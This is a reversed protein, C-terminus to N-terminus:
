RAEPLGFAALMEASPEVPTTRTLVLGTRDCKRTEVRLLNGERDTDIRRRLLRMTAFQEAPSM